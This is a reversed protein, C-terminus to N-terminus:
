AINELKIGSPIPTGDFHVIKTTTDETFRGKALYELTRPFIIWDGQEKLRNQNNTASEKPDVHIPQSIILISGCDVEEAMIHTSARLHTEKENMAKMVAKAGTYRPKGNLKRVSLDAPHVNVGVFADVLVPSLISMYGGFAATSAGYPKLAQITEADFDARLSLDKRSIGRKAYFGEIDRVVVPIDFEKGIKPANSEARDSFLAVIQYVKDGIQKQHELLKCINRGSGSMFGVVRMIGNASDYLPKLGPIQTM